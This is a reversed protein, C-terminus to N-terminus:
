MREAMKRLLNANREDLERLLDSATGKWLHDNSSKVTEVTRVARVARLLESTMKLVATALLDAEIGADVLEERNEALAREYTGAPWVATECAIALQDFDAMRSLPKFETERARRLGHVAIDLLAGLIYARREEFARDLDGDTRRLESPIPQLTISIARDALDERTVFHEIGNLIIPKVATLREEERDTYTRRVAITTGTAVRCFTDSMEQSLKSVNDFALVHSNVATILLDRDNHPPAQLEGAQPDLLDRLTRTIRSKATGYEGQLMLVRYNPSAILSNVLWVTVLVQESESRLNLIPFLDKTLSGRHEPMPLSLMGPPRLFRVPSCRIVKWEQQDIQVVYGDDNALDLYYSGEHAAVRVHVEHQAGKYQARAAITRLAAKLSEPCPVGGETEQFLRERLWDGLGGRDVIELTKRGGNIQIDAYPRRDPTHFLEAEEALRLLLETQDATNGAGGRGIAALGVCSLGSTARELARVSVGRKKLMDRLRFYEALDNQRLEAILEINEPEFPAGPDSKTKQVLEKLPDQVPKANAIIERITDENDTTM